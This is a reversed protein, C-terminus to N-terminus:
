QVKDLESWERAYKSGGFDLYAKECLDDDKLGPYKNLLSEMQSLSLDSIIYMGKHKSLKKQWNRIESKKIYLKRLKRAGDPMYERWYVYFAEHKEGRSCKCNKKGCTVKEKVIYGTLEPDNLVRADYWM